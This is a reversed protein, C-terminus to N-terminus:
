ARAAKRGAKEAKRSAEARERTELCELTYLENGTALVKGREWDQLVKTKVGALRALQAVTHGMRGRIAKIKKSREVMDKKDRALDEKKRQKEREMEKKQELERSAKNQLETIEVAFKVLERPTKAAHKPNQLMAYLNLDLRDGYFM